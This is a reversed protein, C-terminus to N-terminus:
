LKHNKSMTADILYTIADNFSLNELAKDHKFAYTLSININELPGHKGDRVTLQEIHEQGKPLKEVSDITISRTDTITDHIVYVRNMIRRIFQDMAESRDGGGINKLFYFFEVVDREANIVIVRPVVYKNRYRTGARNARDPDLLKLWDSASMAMGRLDDMILVEEGDWDDLPNNSAVTCKQWTIGHHEHVYSILGNVFLDTFYSKGSGSKGTIYYVSINFDGREMAQIAQYAKRQGYTSFAADCKISYAAYTAYYEDTLMIQSKTLKGTLIQALLWDINESAEQSNKKAKSKEWADKRTMYISMYSEGRYTIVEGPSYQHKDKDKAHILYALKNDKSYRGSKPPEVYSSELGVASAVQSLTPKGGSFTLLMHMHNTKYTTKLSLTVEDWVDKSDADHRIAYCESVKVNPCSSEIKACIISSMATIDGLHNKEDDTWNWHEDLFDQTLFCLTLGAETRPM